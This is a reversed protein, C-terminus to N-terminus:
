KTELHFKTNVIQSIQFAVFIIYFPIIPLKFRGMGAPGTLIIFYAIVLLILFLFRHEKRFLNIGGLIALIYEVIFFVILSIGIIVISSSTKRKIEISTKYIGQSFISDIADISTTDTYGSVMREIYPKEISFFLDAIGIL